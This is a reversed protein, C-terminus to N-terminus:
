AVRPAASDSAGGSRQTLKEIMEILTVADLPKSLYDDMGADLCRERDGKMAHATMAVIPVRRGWQAERSRIIGTAEFGGMEPMQVDMLVIDFAQHEVASIADRGHGVVTVHHGARRLIGVAVRQNVVNDEALLIRAAVRSAHMAATAQREVVHHDVAADPSTTEERTADQMADATGLRATFHFTSGHGPESDVWIRGGMLEVLRTAIALGLGTGGFRRTTSGDAQRFAEFVYAQQEKPIGIGTDTVIGHLEVSGDPATAASIEVRVQGQETFKIANGVLNILIQRLRAPDGILMPPVESGVHHVTELGKQEARFTLPKLLEAVLERIQFPTSELDLKQEEIKSFDLIDNLITLLGQASSKVMGLYDRQEGSLNTDLALDTMGLIGNMPTRIEHSMNALFEGKAKSAAEAADKATSLESTRERVLGELRQQNAQLRHVRARDGILAAAVAALGCLAFFWPTQYFHAKLVLPISAGTENWIGDSNAAKVRFVYRGPPVKTYYATRRSGAEIWDRDFGDLKYRFIIDRTAVFSLATYEFELDRSGPGIADNPKIPVRDALASEVAVPPVTQNIHITGPDIVSLGRLTAYWLRGDSARWSTPFMQTGNGGATTTRLGDGLGYSVSKFRTMEHRAFADLERKSVHWVGRSAGMWLNGRQDDLMTYITDGFLGDRERFTAVQGNSVRNLGGGHTAVWLTGDAEEDIATVTDNSLGQATTFWSSEGNHLRLLGHYRVGILLDGNRALVMTMVAGDNVGDIRTAHNDHVHFLGGTTALWLDGHRDEVIGSVNPTPPLASEPLAPHVKGDRVRDLGRLTGVLLSGDSAELLAQVRPASLGQESTFTSIRGDPSLMTVGAPSGVWVNGHRDQLVANVADSLLGDAMGYTTFKGVSFSNLGGGSTGVWVTRERDEFFSTIVDDTLGNKRTFWEWRADRWRGIGGADLGVWFNGDRDVLVNKATGPTAMTLVARDGDVRYVGDSAAIWVTGSRELSLSSINPTTSGGVLPVTITDHGSFRYVTRFRTFWVRHQADVFANSIIGRPTDPVAEFRMPPGTVSRVLGLGTGVFIANGDIAVNSVYNSALGDKTTFATFEGHFYRVLGDDTSIWIAGDVGREVGNIVNSRLAPTNLRNFVVFRTGDFRCLGDRTGIWLYGDDAQTIGTVTNQSLGTDTEWARRVYQAITKSPDLAEASRVPGIVAIAIGLGAAFHASWRM